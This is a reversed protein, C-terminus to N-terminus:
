DYSAPTLRNNVARALRPFVGAAGFPIVLLVALLILGYVVAPV